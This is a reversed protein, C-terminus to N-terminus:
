PLQKHIHSFVTSTGTTTLSILLLIFPKALFFQQFSGKQLCVTSSVHYSSAAQKQDYRTSDMMGRKWGSNGDECMAAICHYDCIKHEMIEYEIGVPLNTHSIGWCIKPLVRGVFDFNIQIEESNEATLHVM